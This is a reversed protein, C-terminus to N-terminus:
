TRNRTQARVWDMARAKDLFTIFHTAKGNRFAFVDTVNGERWEAEHKLRVRVRVSVVVVHGVVDIEGPECSGEAWLGRAKIFHASVAELGRYTAEGSGDAPEVREVQPDLIDILAHVDNRNLGAYAEKVRAVEVLMPPTPM